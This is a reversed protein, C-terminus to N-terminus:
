RYEIADLSVSGGNITVSVEHEGDALGTYLYFAARAGGKLANEGDCVKVGDVTVTLVADTTSGILAFETGTFTFSLSDNEKGKSVTRNYTKYSNMTAHDWGNERTTSKAPSYTIPADLDDMRTISYCQALADVKLNDFLNNQYDSYIGVRGSYILGDNDTYNLVQTGDVSATIVNGLASIKLTVWQGPKVNVNGSAVSTGNKLLEVTGDEYLKVWYGSKASDALNYRLGIGVYNVQNKTPTVPSDTLYVDCSVSYDTWRDDGLTTVPDPTSGWEGPKQAYTIMQKLVNGDETQEVEFAGGQDTTYLPANGRSSLFDEAHDEYEFDDEYPLTLLSDETKITSAVHEPEAIEITSVTAMSYPQLEVIVQYTDEGMKVSQLAGMSRFWNVDVSDEDSDPGSTMYGYFTKSAAEMNKFRLLYTVIKDSQNVLVASAETADENVAAIYNFTSNGMAHGDGVTEGDGYLAGDVFAWGSKIFQSFHLGMYYGADLEYSGAWPENAIILQKPFYTAGDYYSAVAPQFEYMTMGEAISQTIRVAVDLMGNLDGLGSGNGDYYRVGAEYSMPSSGESFWVKKGYESQLKKVEDSTYSTYHSTVVDVADRLEKDNLMKKALGWTTVEEGAVIQITSYDFTCDTEEALRKVFYKIFETDAARENKGLTVYDTEIGYTLYLADFTAKYWTYLADYSDEATDVWNPTGWYLMDIQLNPNVTMADAALQWGAGRTVDANVEGNRMVCPETGSSSNIDAGMEVKILNMGLGDEGFVYQLIEWYSEPNESKYDLLLRSSNNASIFGFGDYLESEQTKARTGDIDVTKSVKETVKTVEESEVQEDGAQDEAAPKEDDQEPETTEESMETDNDTQVTEPQETVDIDTAKKGCGYMTLVLVPIM